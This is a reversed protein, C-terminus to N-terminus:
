PAGDFRAFASRGAAATLSTDFSEDADALGRTGATDGVKGIAEGDLAGTPLPVPWAM